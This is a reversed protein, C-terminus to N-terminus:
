PDSVPDSEGHSEGGKLPLTIIVRTGGDERSYFAVLDNKEYYLRLRQLTGWIGFSGTPERNQLAREGIKEDMGVGDDEITLEIGKETSRTTLLITGPENKPKLGHYVANEAFPQLVLKLIPMELTEPEARCEVTFLHPYRYQLVALYNKVTELEERVTIIEKGKSLSIRYFSGLASMMRYVDQNRGMLALSSISDFTNYLFHPKIQEQLFNMEARRKFTEEQIVKNLLSHIEETMLNYGDRLRIFEPISTEFCAKDLRRSSIDKMTSVLINIPRTIMRTIILSGAMVLLAIVAISIFGATIFIRSERKIEGYPIMSIIKWSYDAMEVYSYLAGASRNLDSYSQRGGAKQVIHVAREALAENSAIVTRNKEDLIVIETAYNKAIESYAKIFIDEAINILVAGIPKQSELDNVVRIHSIFRTPAQQRFADSGNLAVYAGGKLERARRWWRSERSPNFYQFHNPLKDRFFRNGKNDVIYLSIIESTSSMVTEMFEVIQRQIVVDEYGQGQKLAKQVAPNALTMKSYDNVTKLLSSINSGVSYLTQMSVASVKDLMIQSYLKQYFLGSLSLTIVLLLTYFLTIRSAIGFNKLFPLGRM